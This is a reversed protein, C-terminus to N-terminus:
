ESEEKIEYDEDDGKDEDEDEGGTNRHWAWPDEM